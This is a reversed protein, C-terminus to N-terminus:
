LSLHSKVKLAHFLVTKLGHSILLAAAIVNFFCYILLSNGKLHKELWDSISSKKRGAGRSPILFM